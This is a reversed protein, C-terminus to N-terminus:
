SVSLSITRLDLGRAVHAGPRPPTIIKVEVSRIRRELKEQVEPRDKVELNAEEEAGIDFDDQLIMTLACGGSGACSAPQMICEFADRGRCACYQAQMGSTSLLLLQWSLPQAHKHPTSHILACCCCWVDHQLLQPVASSVQVEPAALQEADAKAIVEEPQGMMMVKTNPRIALDSLAAEDTAAKGDMTKLGILKQRKPEVRTQEQLVRKLDAVKQEEPLEVPYEKGSWKVVISKM